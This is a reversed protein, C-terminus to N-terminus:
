GSVNINKFLLTNVFKAAPRYGQDQLYRTIEHEELNDFEVGLLEALVYNPRYRNWNNSKLVSLDVGETDISFFDIPQDPPLHKDLIEALTCTELMIEDIVKYHASQSSWQKALQVSATNLAPENFVFFPVSRRDLSVFAEINIDRPRVRQFEEMSGPMADINIGRWGRRYFVYTNSYRIPHHAGVDVYFGEPKGEFIRSLILDEGEQAYSEQLLNFRNIVGAIKDVVSQDVKRLQDVLLETAIVSIENVKAALNASRIEDLRAVVDVVGKESASRIEDLRAVVDVVGKESASKIEDLKAVVDAPKVVSAALGQKIELLQTGIERVNAELQQFNAYYARHDALAKFGAILKRTKGLIATQAWARQQRKRELKSGGTASPQDASSDGTATGTRPLEIAATKKRLGLRNLIGITRRRLRWFPSSQMAQILHLAETLEDNAPGLVVQQTEVLQRSGPSTIPGNLLCQDQLRRLESWVSGPPRRNGIKLDEITDLLTKSIEEAMREFSFHSAQAAGRRIYDARLKPEELEILIDALGKTDDEGVFLAAEGAVEPIASNRCTVVPCGCAMAEVIPMGFGEYRSTCVYAHAGSYAARLEDDNLKLRRVDTEPILARFPEDIEDHGGVCVLTFRTPEPLLSIARFLLFGNKYGGFGSRDGVMLIYPKVIDYRRKFEMVEQESAPRFAAAVGCHAVVTSGKPVVPMIRELDRASNASIMIHASAHQIARHKESWAEDKLEFGLAEPIMDYGMFVSPTETPTSYYTSVFLDAALERCVQELYLSDRGTQNYDHARITRYHIGAIRPSTGARDLVVVHEAFGSRSWEELLCAWVRSIGTTLYQYFVGDIVIRPRVVPTAIVRKMEEGSCPFSWQAAASNQEAVPIINFASVEDFMTNDDVWPLYDRLFGSGRHCQLKKWHTLANAYGYYSEKFRLQAETVYAFHQFVAGVEEMEDHTFPRKEGIHMPAGGDDTPRVLRPPEHAAWYDGPKFRWTRLWEQQPNQAYNFRTSIVKNPGVFYWCWYHAAMRDPNTKFAHHVAIIQQSTWLEDSDVQWLLCPENINSLPASVMERKGDWFEGLPKRYIKVQEPFRKALADLYATTGDNSRGQDHVTDSVHGGAAVSWATDHTLAAVGEIVHWHWRMPLQSFLEEHYRIFPEGNLVITFFHIPLDEDIVDSSKTRRRFASYGNRLDQNDAILEYNPDDLLRRRVGFNKYTNTDDLLIIRAGYIKDFEIDGTFESGDILVLDFESIGYDKKIREIAGNEVGADAVYRIDQHLWDLVEPLQFRNLASNNQAYFEAVKRETPFEGIGVTSMNYCKVFDLHKYTDQLVKFRTRSIEVCFLTPADPNESLGAVFAKTSGEGAASGIELVYQLPETASLKEILEHFEDNKIEPPKIKELESDLISPDVSPMM